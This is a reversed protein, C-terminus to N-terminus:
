SIHLHPVKVAVNVKGDVKPHVEVYLHQNPEVKGTETFPGTRLPYPKTIEYGKSPDVEILRWSGISEPVEVTAWIITKKKGGSLIGPYADKKTGKGDGAHDDDGDGYEVDFIAHGNVGAKFEQPASMGLSVYPLDMLDELSLSGSDAVGLLEICDLVDHVSRPKDDIVDSGLGSETNGERALFTTASLRRIFTGTHEAEGTRNFDYCLKNGPKAWSTGQKPVSSPKHWVQAGVSHAVPVMNPVYAVKGGNAMLIGFHNEVYCETVACWAYNDGSVRRGYYWTNFQNDNNRLGKAPGYAGKLTGMYNVYQARTPRTVLATPM